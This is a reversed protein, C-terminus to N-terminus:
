RNKRRLWLLAVACGLISVAATLKIARRADRVSPSPYDGGMLAVEVEEGDYFNTGGLRVGLAGAMASEPQGANPSEHKGGDTLWTKWAAKSRAESLFVASACILLASIRAPVFNAADDLRAAVKGFYFYRENKHAIMSDMTNISKYALAAPVGGVALYFLPAIIGDSLSEALTEIVARSIESQDLKDTDRGVIRSLQKRADALDGAELAGIVSNAEQLLNRTALCAAALWVQLGISLFRQKRSVLALGKSSVFSTTLPLGVALLGGAILDYESTSSSCRLFKEARTICAGFARVPHPLCEPDGILWDLLYAAALIRPRM